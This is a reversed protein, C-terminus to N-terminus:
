IEIFGNDVEWKMSKLWNVLFVTKSSTIVRFWDSRNKRAYNSLRYFSFVGNEMCWDMMEAVATDTDAASKIRDLYDSGGLSVVDSVPYQEKEPNDLHCLYRAYARIDSIAQARPANLADTIEKLQAESKKGQFLLMVHYHAKKPEGDANVDKDHLPSIFGPVHLERLKERWDDPLSEPYIVIAWNRKRGDSAMIFGSESSGRAGM